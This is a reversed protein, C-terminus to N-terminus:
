VAAYHPLRHVHLLRPECAPSGRRRDHGRRRNSRSGEDEARQGQVRKHLEQAVGELSGIAEFADKQALLWENIPLGGVTAVGVSGFLFENTPWKIVKSRKEDQRTTGNGYETTINRDAGFIMGQSLVEVVLISM